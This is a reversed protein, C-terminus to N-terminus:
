RARDIADPACPDDPKTRADRLHRHHRFPLCRTPFTPGSRKPVGARVLGGERRVRGISGAMYKDEEYSAGTHGSIRKEPCGLAPDLGSRRRNTKEWGSCQM